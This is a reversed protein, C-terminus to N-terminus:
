ALTRREQLSLLQVRSFHAGALEIMAAEVQTAEARVPLTVRARGAM